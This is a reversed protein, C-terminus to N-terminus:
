RSSLRAAVEKLRATAAEKARGIAEAATTPPAEALALALLELALVLQFGTRAYADYFESAQTIEAVAANEWTEADILGRELRRVAEAYFDSVQGVWQGILRQMGEIQDSESFRRLNDAMPEVLGLSGSM